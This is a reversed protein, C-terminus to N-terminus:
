ELSGGFKIEFVFAPVAFEPPPPPPIPADPGCPGALLEPPLPLTKILNGASTPGAIETLGGELVITLLGSPVIALKVTVPVNVTAYYPV